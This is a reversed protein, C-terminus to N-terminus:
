PASAGLATSDGKELASPLGFADWLKQQAQTLLEDRHAIVLGRGGQRLREELVSSFVITKGTGTPLSLLTRHRCSAFEKLIAAKAEQQYPRLEM